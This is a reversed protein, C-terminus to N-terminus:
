KVDNLIPKSESSKKKHADADAPIVAKLYELEKRLNHLETNIKATLVKVINEETDIDCNLKAVAEKMNGANILQLVDAPILDHIASVIRQLLTNIVYIYPKPLVM